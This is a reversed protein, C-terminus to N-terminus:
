AEAVFGVRGDEARALSPSAAGVRAAAGDAAADSGRDSRVAVSADDDDVEADCEHALCGRANVEAAATVTVLL